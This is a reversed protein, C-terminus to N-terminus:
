NRELHASLRLHTKMYHGNNNESQLCIYTCSGAYCKIFVREATRYSNRASLCPSAFLFM